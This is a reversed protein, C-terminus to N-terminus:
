STAESMVEFCKLWITFQMPIKANLMKARKTSTVTFAMQREISSNKFQFKGLVSASQDMGISPYTPRSPDNALIANLRTKSSAIRRM